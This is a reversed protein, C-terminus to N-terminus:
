VLLDTHDESSSWTPLELEARDDDTTWRRPVALGCGFGGSRANVGFVFQYRVFAQSAMLGLGDTVDRRM